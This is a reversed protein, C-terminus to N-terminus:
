VEEDPPVIKMWHTVEDVSYFWSDDGASVFYKVYENDEKWTELRAVDYHEYESHYTKVLVLDSYRIDIEEGPKKEVFPPLEKKTLIWKM